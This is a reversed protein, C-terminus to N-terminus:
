RAVKRRERNRNFELIVPIISIFIVAFILWNLNEQVFPISGFFYGAFIFVATWVIGGVVNFSTFELYDMKAIGAVFPAFTRMIPVFRAMVVTRGGHKKYFDKTRELYDRRFLHSKEFFKEGFFYGIWYNFTDGIIAALAILYFLLMVDIVGSAAFTGAVFILSDGPLFPAIVLGTELFIIFFIIAYSLGGYNQLIFELYEDIHLLAEFSLSVM